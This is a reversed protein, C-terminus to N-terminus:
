QIRPSIHKKHTLGPAAQEITSWLAGGDGPRAEGNADLETALIIHKVMVDVDVYKM